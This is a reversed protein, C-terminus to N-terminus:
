GALLARAAPVTATTDPVPQPLPACTTDPGNGPQRAPLTGDALYAAVQDDLCADGELSSGHTTGGPLAILSSHPFLQRVELSGEFPTPADLTQDILLASSVRRGDITQPRHAAAPWFLCPSNGWANGWTEFPARAFTAWNDRAWTSWQQPWQVDTCQVALYVAYSNDNGFGDILLFLNELNAVDGNNVYGAFADGLLPWNFQKYGTQLFIDVWEDGGIKGDAPHLTLQAETRYFLAEVATATKGLHYVSDYEALWGFWIKLNRDFGIDQNLNAQYFVNRPDVNSDLVLRRVHTPFLTSYVQGLYTGYSYGYYNLQAVGLAARISDMDKAADITTMHQLIPGNNAACADAYGKARALWTQVTSQRLPIYTPRNFDFYDPDCSLAPQSEGVGRPDFGIWDYYGGAGNPVLQGFTSLANALGAVGPGGANILMVGQAQSDPVTHRIRSIALKIKAGDPHAYDLPVPVLACQAGADVLAPVDCPGWDISAARVPAALAVPAIGAAVLVGAAFVSLRRM